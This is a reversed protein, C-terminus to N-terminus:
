SFSGIPVNTLANMDLNIDVADDAPANNQQYGGFPSNGSQEFVGGSRKQYGNNQGGFQNWGGPKKQYGGGSQNGRNWNGSSGSKKTEFNLDQTLDVGMSAAIASLSKYVQLKDFKGAEQATHAQAMTFAACAEDVAERIIKFQSGTKIVEVSQGTLHNYDRYIKGASLPFYNMNNTRKTSRDLDKYIVLYIGPQENINSGNSIEVRCDDNAGADTGVSKFSGTDKLENAVDECLEKMAFMQTFVLTQSVSPANRITQYDLAQGAPAMGITFSVCRNFYDVKLFKGVRENRLIFGTTNVDREKSSKNFRPASNQGGFAGAM